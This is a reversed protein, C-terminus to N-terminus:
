GGNINAVRGEDVTQNYGDDWIQPRKGCIIKRHDGVCGITNGAGETLFEGPGSFEVEILIDEDIGGIVALRFVAKGGDGLAALDGFIAISDINGGAVIVLVDEVLVGAVYSEGGAPLGLEM